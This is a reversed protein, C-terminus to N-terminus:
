SSGSYTGILEGNALIHGQIAATLDDITSDTSLDLMTDLAYVKFLYRHTGSPPNPGTYINQGDSNLGEVGPATHERIEGSPPINWIIWHYFTDPSADPDEITLALSKTGEPIGDILLRPNVNDGQPTYKSPIAKNNEFAPSRIVLRKSVLETM